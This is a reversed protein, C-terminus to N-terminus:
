IGIKENSCSQDLFINFNTFIADVIRQFCKNATVYTARTTIDFMIQSVLLKIKNVQNIHISSKVTAPETVKLPLSAPSSRAKSVSREPKTM